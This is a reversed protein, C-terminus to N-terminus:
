WRPAQGRRLADARGGFGYVCGGSDCAVARFTYALCGVLRIGADQWLICMAFLAGCCVKLVFTFAEWTALTSGNLKADQM